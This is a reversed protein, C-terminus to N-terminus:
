GCTNEFLQKKTSTFYMEVPTNRGVFGICGQEQGKEDKYIDVFVMDEDDFRGSNIWSKLGEVSLIM